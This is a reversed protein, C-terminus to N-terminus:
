YITTRLSPQRRVPPPHPLKGTGIEGGPKAGAGYRVAVSQMVRSGSVPTRLMPVYRAANFFVSRSPTRIDERMPPAPPYKCQCFYLASPLAIGQAITIPQAGTTM